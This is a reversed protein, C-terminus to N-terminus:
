IHILSLDAVSRIHDSVGFAEQIVIVALPADPSGTVYVPFQNPLIKETV